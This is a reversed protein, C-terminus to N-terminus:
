KKIHNSKGMSWLNGIKFFYRITGILYSPIGDAHRFSALPYRAPAANRKENVGYLGQKYPTQPKTLKLVIFYITVFGKFLGM